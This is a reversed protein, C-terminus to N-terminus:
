YHLLKNLARKNLACKNLVLGNLTINAFHMTAFYFYYRKALGTARSKNLGIGVPLTIAFNM